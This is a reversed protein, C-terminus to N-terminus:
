DDGGGGVLRWLGIESASLRKGAARAWKTATDWMSEDDDITTRGDHGGGGGGNTGLYISPDNDLIGRGRRTPTTPSAFSFSSSSNYPFSHNSSTYLPSTDSTYLTEPSAYSNYFSARTNQIYNPPHALSHRPPYKHTQAYPSYGSPSSTSISSTYVTPHVHSINNSATVDGARPPPAISINHAHSNPIYNAKSTSPSSTTDIKWPLDINTATSSHRTHIRPVSRRPPGTYPSTMKDPTSQAIPIRTDAEIFLPVEEMAAETSLANGQVRNSDSVPSYNEITISNQGTSARSGHETTDEVVIKEEVLDEKSSASSIPFASHIDVGAM